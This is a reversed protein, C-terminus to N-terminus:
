TGGDKDRIEAGVSLTGVDTAACLQSSDAGFSSYGNGDGCDFAYTFGAKTDATSPDSPSSLSLMFPLGADASTPAGLTATPPVNLITVTADGVAFLGGDDTVRVHVTASAPGDHASFSVSKGQTEFINDNDLDWLYTLPGGEPDSGSATLTISGG